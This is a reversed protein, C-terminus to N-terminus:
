LWVTGEPREVVAYCRPAVIGGPLEDLLGAQYISAERKWYGWAAPDNSGMGTSGSAAKLIISWPQLGTAHRGTGTVRYVGLGGAYQEAAGGSLRQVTWDMVEFDTHGLSAAVPTVLDPLQIDVTM